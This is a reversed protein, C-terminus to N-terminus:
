IGVELIYQEGDFCSISIENVEYTGLQHSKVQIRKINHRM